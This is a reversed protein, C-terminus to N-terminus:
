KGTVYLFMYLATLNGSNSANVLHFSATLFKNLLLYSTNLPLLIGVKVHVQMVTLVSGTNIQLLPQNTHSAWIM